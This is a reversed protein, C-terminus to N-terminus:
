NVNYKRKLNACETNALHKRPFRDIFMGNCFIDWANIAVAKKVELTM